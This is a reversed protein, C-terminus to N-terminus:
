GEDPDLGEARAGQGLLVGELLTRWAAVAPKVGHQLLGFAVDLHEYDSSIRKVTLLPILAGLVQGARPGALAPHRRLDLVIREGKAEVLFSPRRPMVAVLNGFKTLDLAGSQILAALPSNSANLLTLSVESVRLELRLEEAALRIDDVFILASARLRAGMLELTAGARVGPPVAEITLDSPVKEGGARTLLWRLAALPVGIRLAVANRAVRLLEDPHEVLYDIISQLVVPKRMSGPIYSLGATQSSTMGLARVAGLGPAGPQSCREALGSPAGARFVPLRVLL